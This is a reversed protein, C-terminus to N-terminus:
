ARGVLAREPNQLRPVFMKHYVHAAPRLSEGNVAELWSVQVQGPGNVQSLGRPAPSRWSQGQRAQGRSGERGSSGCEMGWVRTM